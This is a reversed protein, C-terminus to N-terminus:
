SKLKKLKERAQEWTNAAKNELGANDILQQLGSLAEFVASEAIGEKRFQVLDLLIAKNKGKEDTIINIGNIM